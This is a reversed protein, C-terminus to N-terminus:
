TLPQTSGLVVTRGSPNYWHFIGTVGDPILGAVKRRTACHRLWRRWFLLFCLSQTTYLILWSTPISDSSAQDSRLFVLVTSNTVKLVSVSLCRTYSHVSRWTFHVSSMFAYVKKLKWLLKSVLRASNWRCPVYTRVCWSWHSPVIKGFFFEKIIWRM